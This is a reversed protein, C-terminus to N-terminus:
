KVRKLGEFAKEYAAVRQDWNNDDALTALRVKFADDRSATLARDIQESLEDANGGSFVEPYIVCENMFSTVVVPKELAFYEFLKLPSTTKAIEGPEFPILCVDFERAYTPLEHYDVVGPCLVNEAKALRAKGGYYDPGIFIFGIDQRNMILKNVEEYWLWPALSGFYGVIKSYKKRFAKYGEPLHRKAHSPDRYHATDVGNQSFIVKGAGMAEVSESYLARSSAVVYDAGGSFAFNKLDILRNVTSLDGSIKPDIHDIYEYVLVNRKDIKKSVGSAYATSYVSIVAGSIFPVIDYNTLWVNRKVQRFGKVDDKRWNPTQYIVLYNRRAFASAIHQPRQFLEVNWDAIVSQIFVGAYDDRFHLIHRQFQGWSLDGAQSVTATSPAILAPRRLTGAIKGAPVRLLDRLLPPLKWYLNRALLYISKIVSLDRIWCRSDFKLM